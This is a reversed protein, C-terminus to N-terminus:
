INVPWGLLVHLNYTLRGSVKRGIFSSVFRDMSDFSYTYGNSLRGRVIVRSPENSCGSEVESTDIKRGDRGSLQSCILVEAV